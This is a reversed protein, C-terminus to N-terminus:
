TRVEMCVCVCVCARVCVCVCVCIYIVDQSSFSIGTLALAPSLLLRAGLSSDIIKLDPCVIGLQLSLVVQFQSIPAMLPNVCVQTHACRYVCMTVRVRVCMFVYIYAHSRPV